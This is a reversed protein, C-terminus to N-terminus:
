FTSRVENLAMVDDPALGAPRDRVDRLLWAAVERRPGHRPGDRRGEGLDGLFDPTSRRLEHPPRGRVSDADGDLRRAM